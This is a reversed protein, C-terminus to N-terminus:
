VPAHSGAEESGQSGGRRSLTGRPEAAATGLEDKVM